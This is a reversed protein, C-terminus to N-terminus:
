KPRNEKIFKAFFKSDPCMRLGNNAWHLKERMNGHEVVQLGYCHCQADVDLQDCSLDSHSIIIFVALYAFAFISWVKMFNAHLINYEVSRSIKAIVGGGKRRYLFLVLAFLLNSALFASIYTIMHLFSSQM